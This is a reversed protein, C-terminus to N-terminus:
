ANLVVGLHKRLLYATVYKVLHIRYERTARVDSIPSVRRSIVDEVIGRIMDSINSGRRLGDALMQSYDILVPTPAVSAYAVRLLPEDRTGAALVAIGVIALDESTRVCKFYEGSANPPPPPLKIGILVEDSELVTQKVWRFFRDLPVERVGNLSAIVARAGYVLLPPASDAAPSANVVNGCLTARSRLVFDGMVRLADALIPYEKRVIDCEVLEKLTVAAGIFLDSGERWLRKLEKVGKIDIVYEPRRVGAKMDVLLDTGGALLAARPGYRHKLELLESLSSPRLYTFKPLTSRFVLTSHKVSVDRVM